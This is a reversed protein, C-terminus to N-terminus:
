HRRLFDKIFDFRKMLAFRGGGTEMFENVDKQFKPMPVSSPRILSNNELNSPTTDQRYLYLNTIKRADAYNM